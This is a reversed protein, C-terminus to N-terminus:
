RGAGRHAEKSLKIAKDAAEEASEALDIADGYNAHAAEEAAKTMHERAFYYEYPAYKEAGVEKAEELKGNASSAQVAYLTGGCGTLLIVAAAAMVVRAVVPVRQRKV